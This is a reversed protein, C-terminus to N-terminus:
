TADHLVFEDRHILEMPGDKIIDVVAESRMGAVMRCEDASMGAIGKGVPAGRDDVVEVADGALFTGDAHVVGVPLLSTGKVRLARAAGADVVVRGMAPKAYRLWLKFASMRRPAPRFRTGVHQGSAVAALVGERAAGAIVTTIGAATAMGASALKSEVGGRGLGSGRMDALTVDYPGVGAALTGILEPQGDAGVGYLGDRDTLLVLWTAGLLVAVHAALVDNDGFTLEDTATTDNENIIPLVGLELLRMLTNRANLYGARRELDASTLLVQAPTIGLPACLEQYRRFLVGQWVASAAQLDPLATPRERFGLHRYGCAIAGSSVLVPRHGLRRLRELDRLRADILEDRIGGDGDVLSSSGLKAVM